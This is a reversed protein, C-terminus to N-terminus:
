ASRKRRRALALGLAGLGLLAVSGPEPVDVRVPLETLQSNYYFEGSMLAGSDCSQSFSADFLDIAGARFTLAKVTFSGRTRNCGRHMYSVDLGAHDASAFREANGYTVGTQLVRNGGDSAFHLTTFESPWTSLAFVFSVGSAAPAEASSTNYFSAFNWQLTPDKSSYVTSVDRGGSIYDGPTGTLKLQAVSAHVPAAFYLSALMLTISTRLKM